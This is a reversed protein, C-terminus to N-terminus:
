KKTIIFPMGFKAIIVSIKDSNCRVLMRPLFQKFNM